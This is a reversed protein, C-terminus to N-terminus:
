SSNILETEFIKWSKEGYDLLKKVEEKSLDFNVSNISLNKIKIIYKQKKYNETIENEDMKKSIISIIQSIYDGFSNIETNKSIYNSDKFIHIGLLDEIDTKCCFNEVDQCFLDCPFNNELGADIIYDNNYKQKTFFFPINISFRIAETIKINPTILYNFFEYKIKNLNYAIVTYKVPYIKFLEIFTINPSIGKKILLCEIWKMLIKGNEIGWDNFFNSFNLNILENGNLNIVETIMEEFTFNLVIFLGLFTGASICAIHELNFFFYPSNYACELAKVSAAVKPGGGSILLTNIEKEKM